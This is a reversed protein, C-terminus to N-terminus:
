PCPTLCASFVPEFSYFTKLFAKAEDHLAKHQPNYLVSANCRYQPAESLWRSQLEAEVCASYFPFKNVAKYNM